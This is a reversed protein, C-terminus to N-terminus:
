TNKVYTNIKKLHLAISEDIYIQFHYSKKDYKFKINNDTGDQTIISKPNFPYPSGDISNIQISIKEIKNLQFTRNISSNKVVFYEDHLYIYGDQKKGKFSSIFGLLFTTIILIIVITTTNFFLVTTLLALTSIIFGITLSKNLTQQKQIIPIRTLYM